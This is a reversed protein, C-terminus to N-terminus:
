IYDKILIEAILIPNLAAGKRINDAMVWLNLGPWPAIAERVRGVYVFDANAAETVATPYIGEQTMLVLTPVQALLACAQQATIKDRTEIHLVQGCGYFMPVCVATANVQISEDALVKRTELRMATEAQTYGEEMFTGVQPLVNFAIQKAYVKPMIDKGNLLAVTQAALEEIAAKGMGSVSQYAAVNLREIGVADYIPKLAVLMQVTAPNPSAIMNRQKYQAIAAANVEAVVLPVERAQCFQGSNDIVLCGAQAARSAHLASVAADLCFWALQTQSFDFDQVDEIPLMKGKFPARKGVANAGDLPYMKAIPFGREELLTLLTEGALGTVGVVAVDFIRKM